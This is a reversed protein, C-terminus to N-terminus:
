SAPKNGATLRYFTGEHRVLISGNRTGPAAVAQWGSRGTGWAAALVDKRPLGVAGGGTVTGTADVVLVCDPQQGDIMAWGNLEVDATVGATEVYGATRRQGGPGPLPVAAALDVRDGLEPGGCGLTFDDTFPYVRMSRLVQLFEPYAYEKTIVSTAGTRMAVALTPTSPYQRRAETATTSGIAYTTMAAVLAIPVVRARAIMPGRTSVLVLLACTFLLSLAVYRHAIGEEVGYGARGVGIMAAALVAHTGLGIWGADDAVPTGPRGLRERFAPTALVALLGLSVAGALIALDLSQGSWAKGLAAIMTALLSDAGILAPKPYQTSAPALRWLLLVAVGGAIPAAVRWGRDRRLWAVLGVALWVPLGSGHGLSALAAFAVAPVTRGRHAFGIAVVAPALGLLWQTGMMGIGFYSFAASSFVLASLAALVAARSTGTLRAPLMTWMSGLIVGALLVSFLGLTWNAGAFFKADLWFVASVTEIPHGNYLTTTKGPDFAGDQSTTLGLVLWFDNYNLRPSRIAEAVALVVPMGALVWLAAARPFRRASRSVAPRDDASERRAPHEITALRGM